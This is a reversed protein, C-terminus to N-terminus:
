IRVAALGGAAQAGGAGAAGVVWFLSAVGVVVGAAGFSRPMVSSSLNIAM